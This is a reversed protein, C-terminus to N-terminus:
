PSTPALRRVVTEVMPVVQITAFDIFHSTEESVRRRNARLVEADGGSVYFRHPDLFDRPDPSAETVIGRFRPAGETLPRAVENRVYSAFPHCDATTIRHLEHWYHYFEAEDTGAPKDLLTVIALGPSPQGEPWSMATGYPRPVSECVLYTAREVAPATALLAELPEAAHYSDVWLSLLAALRTAHPGSGHRFSDYAPECSEVHVTAARLDPCGLLHPLLSQSVWTPMADAAAASAAWLATCLKEM